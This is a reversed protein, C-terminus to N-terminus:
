GFTFAYAHVGPDLFEIEFTREQVAGNQRILQYLRNGDVQGSGDASVDGGASAGPAQGDIRVIFRVPKSADQPALVLHLDRAHFRFAIRGGAQQLQADEEGVIWRGDLAWQNLKLTTPLRYDAARGAYLGGPSAFNEARARGVYTEPSKLNNMDAEREVGDRAAEAKMAPAAEGPLSNGAERLLQRIIQESQVYNGEGFHHARIRGQADIFYHAPWYRNNFGRWIAFDNDIAVPYTVKLDTVARQVNRVDREFAFEPAHVGIVVLGHDRYREVWERVHPMARLCNICSYTWFDVLVVKGRLAQADLPPSNLWGTAGALSPLMGEVPLATAPPDNGAMMMMSGGAPAQGPLADLLGQELRATSVTSLRTLVGTDWGMAIAVVALLAAIGLGRRIWEGAGLHRKLAAFVRGGIWLALALSTAAGLAYALLLGSTGVNAGQLAAGTLILGLIPGACPAWLLGTAIGILLSTGMGARGEDASASLRVGLRQLPSLLRNAFAPWLLALAFMAMVLLAIWRGIQNAQAVWQSGVAALSAVVAFMLAMGVLLPLGSRLFPHDSRAFVFPLVPLICPSLLTLVGGLYALVLLFM